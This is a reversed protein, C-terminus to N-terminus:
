CYTDAQRPAQLLKCEAHVEQVSNPDGKISYCQVDHGAQQWLGSQLDGPCRPAHRNYALM